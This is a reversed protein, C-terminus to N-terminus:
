AGQKVKEMFAVPLDVGAVTPMSGREYTRYGLHAYFAEANANSRVIFAVYGQGRTDAEAAEVMRRGLGTGALAPDVFVKRIRTVDPRDEVACWGATAMITGGDAVALQLHNRMLVDAYGDSEIEAVHAAIQAATNHTGALARFATAHLRRVALIDEPAIPRLLKM